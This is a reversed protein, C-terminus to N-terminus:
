TNDDNTGEATDLKPTRQIAEDDNMLSSFIITKQPIPCFSTERQTCVSGSKFEGQIKGSHELKSKLKGILCHLSEGYGICKM